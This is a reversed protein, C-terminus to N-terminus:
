HLKKKKSALGNVKKFCIIKQFILNRKNKDEQNILILKLVEQINLLLMKWIISLFIINFSRVKKLTMQFMMLRNVKYKQIIIILFTKLMVIVIMIIRIIKNRITKKKTFGQYYNFKKIKNLNQKDESEMEHINLDDVNINNIESQDTNRRIRNEQIDYEINSQVIELIQEVDQQLPNYEIIYQIISEKIDKRQKKQNKLKMSKRIYKEDRQQYDEKNYKYLIKRRQFIPNVFFCNLLIHRYSKCLQCKHGLNKYNQYLTIKEKMMMYKEYDKSYNKIIQLFNPMSIYATTVIEKSKYQLYSQKQSFFQIEDFISGKENIEFVEGGKFIVKVNGRVLFYLFDFQEGIDIIVEDGLFRKEEMKYALQQLFEQSFNLYFLKNQNLLKLHIEALIDNKLQGKLENHFIDSGENYKLDEQHLYDFYKKVQVQKESSIGRKNMYSILTNMKTKLAQKEKTFEQVISGISNLSYAFVGCSFLTIIIVTIKEYLTQPTFDGYGVTIMTVVAWYISTIYQEFITANQLEYKIVWSKNSAQQIGVFFYICACFHSIFIITFVLKLLQLIANKKQSFNFLEEFNASIQIFRNTRLILISKLYPTQQYLSIIFPILVIIDTLFYQKYYNQLIRSKDMVLQGKIYFGTNCKIFVYLLLSGDLYIAQLFHFHMMIRKHKVKCFLKNSHHTFFILQYYASYLLM